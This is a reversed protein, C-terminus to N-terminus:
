RILRRIPYHSYCLFPIVFNCVSEGKAASWYGTPKSKESEKGTSGTHITIALIGPEPAMRNIRMKLMSLIGLPREKLLRFMNDYATPVTHSHFYSLSVSM